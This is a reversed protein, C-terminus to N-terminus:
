GQDVAVKVIIKHLEGSAILPMHADEPFFIAFAGPHTALWADPRDKFFKLDKEADYPVSINTCTATPRWGMEDVGSLVFQIDIYNEHAELEADERKRGQDRAVMAFVRHGDIEHRGVSLERLDPRKLFEVARTFGPNLAGYKDANELVDLIM